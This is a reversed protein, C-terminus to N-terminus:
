NLNQCLIHVILRKYDFPQYQFDIYCKIINFWGGTISNYSILPKLKKNFNLNLHSFELFIYRSWWTTMYCIYSHHLYKENTILSMYYIYYDICIYIDLLKNCHVLPKITFNM